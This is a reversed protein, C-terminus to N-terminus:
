LKGEKEHLALRFGARLKRYTARLHEPIVRTESFLPMFNTDGDWRPVIHLHVHMDDRAPVAVRVEHRQEALGADDGLMETLGIALQARSEPLHGRFTPVVPAPRRRALRCAQRPAARSPRRLSM